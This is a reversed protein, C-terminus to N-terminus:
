AATTDVGANPPALHQAVYAAIDRVLHFAPVIDPDIDIGFHDGVQLSVHVLDLSDIGLDEVLRSDPTIPADPRVKAATRVVRILEALLAADPM